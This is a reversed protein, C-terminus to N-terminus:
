VAAETPAETTTGYQALFIDELSPERSVFDALDYRAAATVVPGIPGTVLMRLAQGERRLQSVGSIGAFADLPVEAPFRL